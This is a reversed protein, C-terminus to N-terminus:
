SSYCNLNFTRVQIHACDQAQHVAWGTLSVVAHSDASVTWQVVCSQSAVRSTVEKDATELSATVAVGMEGDRVDSVVCGSVTLTLTSPHVLTVPQSTFVPLCGLDFCPQLSTVYTHGSALVGAPIRTESSSPELRAQHMVCLQPDYPGSQEGQCTVDTTELLLWKVWRQWQGRGEWTVTVHDHPLPLVSQDKLCHSIQLSVDNPSTASLTLTVNPAMVVVQYGSLTTQLVRANTIIVDQHFPTLQVFLLDGAHLPISVTLSFDVTLPSSQNVVTRGIVNSDHCGPGHFVHLDNSSDNRPLLVFGDSSFHATGSSSTAKTVSFLRVYNPASSVNFCHHSANSVPVFPIVDELRTGLSVKINVGQPDLDRWAACVEDVHLLADVDRSFAVYPTTPGSGAMRVVDLVLAHNPPSRAPLRVSSTNVSAVHGVVNVAHLQFFFADGPQTDRLHLAQLPYRACGSANYKVRCETLDSESIEVWSTVFTGGEQGVRFSLTLSMDPTQESDAIDGDDWTVLLKNAHLRAALSRTFQPPTFDVIVPGLTLTVDLGAKSVARLFLFFTDGHGLGSHRAHYERHGHTATWPLLDPASAATAESGLGLYYEEMDSEADVGQWSARIYDSPLVLVKDEAFSPLKRCYRESLQSHLTHNDSIPLHSVDAASLDAPICMNRCPGVDELTVRTLNANVLWAKGSESCGVRLAGRAHTVSVNVLAPPTTDYTVGDSCAVGSPALANNYGLLSVNYRGPSSIL